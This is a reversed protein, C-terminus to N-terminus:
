KMMWGARMITTYVMMPISYSIMGEGFDKRGVFYGLGSVGTVIWDDVPPLPEVTPSYLPPFWTQEPLKGYAPAELVADIISSVIAGFLRDKFEGM